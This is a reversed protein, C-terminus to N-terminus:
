QDTKPRPAGILVFEPESLRGDNNWDLSDFQSRLISEGKDIEDRTLFRNGDLDLIQFRSERLTEVPHTAGALPMSFQADTDSQSHVPLTLLITAAAAACRFIRARFM